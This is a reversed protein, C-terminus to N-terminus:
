AAQPFTRSKLIDRIQEHHRQEHFSVIRILQAVNNDGLLPHQYRLRRFDISPNDKLLQATADISARLDNRLGGIPKGPAPEAVKPNQAPLWRFTAMLERIAPPVM